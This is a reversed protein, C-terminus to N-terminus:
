DFDNWRSGIGAGVIVTTVLGVTLGLSSSTKLNLAIDIMSFGMLVYVGWRKFGWTGVIGILEVVQVAAVMMLTQGVAHMAARGQSSIGAPNIANLATIAIFTMILVIVSGATKLGLILKLVGPLEPRKKPAQLPQMPQM